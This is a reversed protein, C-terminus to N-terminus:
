KRSLLESRFQNRLQFKQVQERLHFRSAAPPKPHSKRYGKTPQSSLRRPFAEILSRTQSHLGRRPRLLLLLYNRSRLTTRTEREGAPVLQLQQHMTTDVQGPVRRTAHRESTQVHLGLGM